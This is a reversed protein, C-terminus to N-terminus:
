RLFSYGIFFFNSDISKNDNKFGANSIHNFRYSFRLFQDDSIAYRLGLGAQSLFGWDGGFGDPDLNTVVVGVGIEAYPTLRKHNKLNVIFLPTTGVMFRDKDEQRAYSSIGEVAYQLSGGRTLEKFIKGRSVLFSVFRIDEDVNGHRLSTHFSKGYGTSFSWDTVGKNFPGEAYALVTWFIGLFLGITHTAKKM